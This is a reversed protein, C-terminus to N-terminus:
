EWFLDAISEQKNIIERFTKRVNKAVTLRAFFILFVKNEADLGGVVVVQKRSNIKLYIVPLKNKTSSHELLDTLNLNRWNYSM